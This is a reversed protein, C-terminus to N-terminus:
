EEEESIAPPAVKAKLKNVLEEPISAFIKVHDEGASVEIKEMLEGIEPNKAAAMGGFAKLGNLMDAIQQIKDQEASMVNIEGIINKDKHDFSLTAATIAKLSGLMPNQSAAKDMLEPPFLFAGWFLANKNTRELVNSLKENKFVNDGKKQFVDIVAKVSSSQGLAINSNDLFVFSGEETEDESHFVTFGNYEEESLEQDEEKMKEKIMPLLSDKDYKLNIIAVGKQKAQGLGETLAGAMFFVDKQPDIGTKDIFEQLKEQTKEEQLANMVMENTMARQFDVFFVGQADAPILSLIDEPKAEGAVPTSPQKKCSFSSFLALMLIMSITTIKKMM